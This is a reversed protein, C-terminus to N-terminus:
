GASSSAEAPAARAWPAASTELAPPLTATAAPRQQTLGLRAKVWVLGFAAEELARAANAAEEAARELEERDLTRVHHQLHAVYRRQNLLSENLKHLAATLRREMELDLVAPPMMSTVTLRAQNVDHKLRALQMWATFRDLRGERLDNLVGPVADLAQEAKAYAGLVRREWQEYAAQQEPAVSPDPWPAWLSELRLLVLRIPTSPPATPLVVQEAAARTPPASGAFVLALGAAGLLALRRRNKLLVRDLRGVALGVLALGLALAGCTLSVAAMLGM